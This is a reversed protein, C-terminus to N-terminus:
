GLPRPQFNPPLMDLLIFAMKASMEEVLVFVDVNARDSPVWGGDFAMLVSSVSSSLSHYKSAAKASRM